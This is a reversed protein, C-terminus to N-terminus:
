PNGVHIFRAEKTWKAISNGPTMVHRAGPGVENGRQLRVAIGNDSAPVVNLTNIGM